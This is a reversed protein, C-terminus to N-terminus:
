ADSWFLDFPTNCFAKGSPAVTDGISEPHHADETTLSADAPFGVFYPKIASVNVIPNAARSVVRCGDNRFHQGTCQDYPARPNVVIVGQAVDNGPFCQGTRQVVYVALACGSLNSECEQARQLGEPGALPETAINHPAVVNGGDKQTREDTCEKVLTRM